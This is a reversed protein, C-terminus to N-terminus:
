IIIPAAPGSAPISSAWTRFIVVSRNISHRPNMSSGDESVQIRYYDATLTFGRIPHLAVGASVNFSKEPELEKAGLAIAAPDEIQFSRVERGELEGAANTYSTNVNPMFSRTKSPNQASEPAKQAAIGRIECFFCRM